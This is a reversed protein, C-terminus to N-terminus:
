RSQKPRRELDHLVARLGRGGGRAFEEEAERLAELEDPLPEEPSPLRRLADLYRRLAERLVQSRTLNYEERIRDLEALEGEPLHTSITKKRSAAM